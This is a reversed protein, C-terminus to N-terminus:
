LWGGKEMETRNKMVAEAFVIGVETTTIEYGKDKGLQNYYKLEATELGTKLRPQMFDRMWHYTEQMSEYIVKQAHGSSKLDTRAVYSAFTEQSPNASGPNETKEQAPLYAPDKARLFERFKLNVVGAPSDPSAQKDGKPAWDDAKTTVHLRASRHTPASILITPM